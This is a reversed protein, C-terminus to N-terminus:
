VICVKEILELVDKNDVFEIYSRDIEKKTYEEQEMKFVHQWSSFVYLISLVYLFLLFVLSFLSARWLWFKIFSISLCVQWTVHYSSYVEYLWFELNFGFSTLSCWVCQLAIFIYDVDTYKTNIDIIYVLPM